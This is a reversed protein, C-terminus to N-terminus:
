TGISENFAEVGDVFLYLVGARLSIQVAYIGGQVMGVPQDVHNWRTHHYSVHLRMEGPVFWVSPLRAPENGVHLLSTYGTSSALPKVEFSLLFESLTTVSFLRAGSLPSVWTDTSADLVRPAGPPPAAPPSPLPPSSPPTDAMLHEGALNYVTM